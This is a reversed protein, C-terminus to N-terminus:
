GCRLSNAAPPSLIMYGAIVVASTVEGLSQAGSPIKAPPAHIRHHRNNSLPVSFHERLVSADKHGSKVTTPRWRTEPQCIHTGGINTERREAYQEM